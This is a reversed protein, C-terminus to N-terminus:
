DILRSQNGNNSYRGMPISINRTVREQKPLILNRRVAMLALGSSITADFDTRKTIDFKIWDNLTRNFPMYGMDGDEMEGIYEEVYSEIMGAHMQKVDESTNPIGRTSLDGAGMESIRKDPRLMAFQEYGRNKMYRLLGPKNNEVLIPMGYFICAMLVDEFFEYSTQPRAIYELFFQMSPAYESVNAATLGHLAGNSGFGYNVGDIDYSDCGFAGLNENGAAWRGNRDEIVNNQLKEPPFWNIRFRGETEHRFRVKTDKIGNEGTSNGKQFM